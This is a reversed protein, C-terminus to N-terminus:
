VNENENEGYWYDFEKLVDTKRSIHNVLNVNIDDFGEFYKMYSRCLIYLMKFLLLFAGMWGWELVDKIGMLSMVLISIFYVISYEKSRDKLMEQENKGLDTIDDSNVNGLLNNPSLGKIKVNKAKTVAACVTDGYTSKLDVESMIKLPKLKHGEDDKSYKDFRDFSIAVDRLIAEQRIRIAKSNYEFCFDNLKDIHKGTLANVKNSYQKVVNIFTETVKAAYVGKKYFNLALAISGLYFPIAELLINFAEKGLDRLEIAGLSLLGVSIVLGMAIVDFIHTKVKNAFSKNNQNVDTAIENITKM